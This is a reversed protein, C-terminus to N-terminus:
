KNHSKKHRSTEVWRWGRMAPTCVQVGDARVAAQGTAALARRTTVLLLPQIMRDVEPAELTHDVVAVTPLVGVHVHALGRNTAWRLPRSKPDECIGILTWGHFNYSIIM